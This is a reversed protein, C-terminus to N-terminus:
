VDGGSHGLIEPVAQKPGLDSVDHDPRVKVRGRKSRKTKHPNYACEDFICELNKKMENFEEATVRWTIEGYINVAGGYPLMDKLMENNGAM